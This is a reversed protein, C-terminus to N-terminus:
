APNKEFQLFPDNQINYSNYLLLAIDDQPLDQSLVHPAALLIRLKKLVPLLYRILQSNLPLQWIGCLIVLLEVPVNPGERIGRSSANQPLILASIDKLACVVRIERIDECVRAIQQNVLVLVIKTILGQGAAPFWRQVFSHDGIYVGFPVLGEAVLVRVADPVVTGHAPAPVEPM